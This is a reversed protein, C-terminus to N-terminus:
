KMRNILGRIKSFLKWMFDGEELKMKVVLHAPLTAIVVRTKGVWQGCKVNSSM